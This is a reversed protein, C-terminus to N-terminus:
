LVGKFEEFLYDAINKEKSSFNIGVLIIRKGLKIYPEYYRTDHIQQLANQASGNLKFEFIYLFNDTEVVLDIRGINTAKEVEARINLLKLIVYFITQYYKEKEIAITYPITSYFIRMHRIFTDVQNHMLANYLDDLVTDVAGPSSHSMQVLIDNFLAGKNAQISTITLLSLIIISKYSFFQLISAYKIGSVRM